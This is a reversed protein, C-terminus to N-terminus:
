IKKVSLKDRISVAKWILCINYRIVASMELILDKYNYTFQNWEKDRFKIFEMFGQWCLGVEM